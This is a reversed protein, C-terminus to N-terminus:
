IQELYPALVGTNDDVMARPTNTSPVTPVISPTGTASLPIMTTSPTVTPSSEPTPTMTASPEPTSTQTPSPESTPTLTPSTTSTATASLVLAETPTFSPIPSKTVEIAVLTSIDSLNDKRGLISFVALGGGMLIFFIVFYLVSRGWNGQDLEVDRDYASLSASPQTSDMTESLVGIVKAKRVEEPARFVYCEQYHADLCFFAQHHHVIEAPNEILHCRNNVTPFAHATREDDVSRLYPCIASALPDKETM